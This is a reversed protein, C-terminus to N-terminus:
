HSDDYVEYSGVNRYLSITGSPFIVFIHELCDQEVIIARNQQKSETLAALIDQQLSEITERDTSYASVYRHLHSLHIIQSKQKLLM